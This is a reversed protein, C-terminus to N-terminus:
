GGALARLLAVVGAPDAVLVDASAAVEPPVEAGGGVGIVAAALGQGRARQAARFMDLDTVDDGIVVLARLAHRAVVADVATGKDGAGRPRVELSMRGPRLEIPGTALAELTARVRRRAGDPDSANRFHVTASLGKHEVTVGPEEPVAALVREVAAGVDALHPAASPEGAGPELWELGHNGIVLLDDRGLIRRADAAARGTVVGVAALREVLAGLADAAGPLVRAATPDAVIPALTGDLDTLLGAPAAALATRALELAHRAYPREM